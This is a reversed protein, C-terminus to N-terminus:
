KFFEKKFLIFIISIITLTLMIVTILLVNKNAYSFGIAILGFLFTIFYSMLAITKQSLGMDLLKHHIHEKDAKFINKRNKMRRFIAMTTDALPLFLVSIPVLLTIATIGKSQGTGSISLIAIVYGLLLSGADGLFIKAPFFNYRLFGITSGLFIASILSIESSNFRIGVIMIVLFTIASIGSALGDLGDILNIANMVLLFWSITLPLSFYGLIIDQGFPNTLVRIQFGFYFMILSILIQIGLKKRASFHYKDDLFGLATIGFGGLFIKYSDSIAFLKSHFFIAFIGMAFTSAFLISLGGSLPMAFDHINRENPHDLVHFKKSFRINLPVFFFELLYSLLFFFILEFYLINCM